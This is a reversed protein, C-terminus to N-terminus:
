NRRQPRNGSPKGKEIEEKSLFGDSNTDLRDFDQALPGKVEKKSLKGDENTDMKSFLESVSPQGKRKQKNQSSAEETAKCSIIFSSLGLFVAIIITNRKM